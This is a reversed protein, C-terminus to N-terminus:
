EEASRVCRFGVHSMGTDASIGRRASPRYSACYDPHCLFSGGKVVHRVQQSSGRSLSDVPGTPDCCMPKGVRQAFTDPRYWDSCWNWVNGAMGYLGYGNAPFSKVPAIGEFGDDKTNQHPFKGTWPEAMYNGDHKFENGWQYRTEHSGGRAAFEWEAETPLRKDAWKAYALADDWAIQVVPCHEQGVLDSGPGAPHRWSAGPTWQWFNAMQRLDVPGDTGVFVMSGAVLVSDDPRPTGAPLQKKLEEWEPQREALTAYSTADVFQEFQVNTVPAPDIWFGSVQVLHAPRENRRSMDDDSGMMFEGGPIWVMDDPAEGTPADDTTPSALSKPDGGSEVDAVTATEPEPSETTCGCVSLAVLTITLYKMKRLHSILNPILLQFEVMM